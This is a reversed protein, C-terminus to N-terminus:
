PYQIHSLPLAIRQGLSSSLQPQSIGRGMVFLNRWSLHQVVRVMNLVAMKETSEIAIRSTYFMLKITAFSQLLM